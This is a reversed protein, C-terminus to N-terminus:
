RKHLHSKYIKKFYEDEDMEKPPAQTKSAVGQVQAKRQREQVLKDVNPAPTPPQKVTEQTTKQSDQPPAFLDPRDKAFLGIVYAIEDASGDAMQQIAPPQYQFWNFYNDDEVIKPLDPVLQALRVRKQEQVSVEREKYLPEVAARARAEAREEAQRTADEKIQQLVKALAPDAEQLVKWEETEEVKLKATENPKNEVKQTQHQQQDKERLIRELSQAKNNLAKVRGENSSYKHRWEDREKQLEIIKNKLDDPLGALPDENTEANQTQETTEQSEDTTNEVAEETEVAETEQKNSSAQEEKREMNPDKGSLFSGYVEKFLADNDDTLGNQNQETGNM